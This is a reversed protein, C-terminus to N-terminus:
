PSPCGSQMFETIVSVGFRWGYYAAALKEASITLPNTGFSHHYDYCMASNVQPPSAYPGLQLLRPHAGPGGAYHQWALTNVGGGPCLLPTVNGDADYTLQLTCDPKSPPVTAPALAARAPSPPTSTLASSTSTTNSRTATSRAGPQSPRGRGPSSASTLAQALVVGVGVALGATAVIAMAAIVLRFGTKSRSRPQEPDEDLAAAAIDDPQGVKALVDRLDMASASGREELAEDVHQRIESALQDRRPRALPALAADLDRFYAELIQHTELQDHM